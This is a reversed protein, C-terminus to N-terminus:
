NSDDNFGCSVDRTPIEVFRLQQYDIRWAKKFSHAYGGHLPKKRITWKGIAIIEADPFKSSKCETDSTDFFKWGQPLQIHIMESPTVRTEHGSSDADLRETIVFVCDFSRTKSFPRCLAFVEGVPKRLVDLSIGTPDTYGKNQLDDFKGLYKEIVFTQSEAHASSAAFQSASLLMLFPMLSMLMANLKRMETERGMMFKFSIPTLGYM